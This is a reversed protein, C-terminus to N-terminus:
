RIHEPNRADGGVEVGGGNAQAMPIAIGADLVADASM